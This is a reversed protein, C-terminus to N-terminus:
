GACAIGARAFPPPPPSARASFPARLPSGRPPRQRRPARPPPAPRRAAASTTESAPRGPPRAHARPAHPHARATGGAHAAPRARAHTVAASAKIVARLSAAAAPWGVAGREWGGGVAAPGSPAMLLGCQAGSSSRSSSGGSSSVGGAPSAATMVPTLPRACRDAGPAGALRRPPSALPVPLTRGLPSAQRRRGKASRLTGQELLLLRRPVNPAGQSFFHGFRGGRVKIAM